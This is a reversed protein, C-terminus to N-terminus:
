FIQMVPNAIYLFILFAIVLLWSRLGEKETKLM